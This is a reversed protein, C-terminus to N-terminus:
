SLRGRLRPSITGLLRTMLAELAAGDVAPAPTFRADGLIQGPGETFGPEGLARDLLALWREDSVRRAADIGLGHVFLRKLLENCADAYARGDLEGARHRRALEAHLQRARRVPRRTQWARWVGRALLLVCVLIAGAVLWWGPAPPWWGPAPPVHIDKLQQLLDSQQM